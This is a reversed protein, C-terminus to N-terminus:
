AAARRPDLVALAREAMDLSVFREGGPIVPVIRMAFAEVNISGAAVERVYDRSLGLRAALTDIHSALDPFAARAAAHGRYRWVVDAPHAMGVQGTGDDLRRLHDALGEATRGHRRSSTTVRIAADRRVRHGGAHARDILRADEAAPRPEFGDLARYTDARLALSAASTYHHTAPAEWGVPDIRRRLAFLADYYAEVRDQLLSPYEADRVVRGTAIDAFALAARNAAIWDRDPTTDADTSILIANASDALAMAARRARGANPDARDLTTSRIAFPLADAQAAVVDASDDSCGDFAICLLDPPVTQEALATLFSPLRAAEDRVPVAVIVREQQGM